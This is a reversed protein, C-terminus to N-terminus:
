IQTMRWRWMGRKTTMMMVAAAAVVVVWETEEREGAETADVADKRDM